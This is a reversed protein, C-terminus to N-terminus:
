KKTQGTTLAQLKRGFTDAPEIETCDNNDTTKEKRELQSTFKTILSNLLYHFYPSCSYSLPWLWHSPDLLIRQNSKSVTM